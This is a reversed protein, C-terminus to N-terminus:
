HIYRSYIPQHKTFIDEIFKNNFMTSIIDNMVKGSKESDVGQYYKIKKKFTLSITVNKLFIFTKLKILFIHQMNNLFANFRQIIPTQPFFM